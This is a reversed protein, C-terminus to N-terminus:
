SRKGTTETFPSEEQLEDVSKETARNFAPLGQWHRDRTDVPPEVFPPEEGELRAVISTAGFRDGACDADAQLKQTIDATLAEGLEADKWFIRV